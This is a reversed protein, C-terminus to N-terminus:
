PAFLKGHPHKLKMLNLKTQLILYVSGEYSIGLDIWLGREDVVPTEVKNIIPPTKGLSLETVQLDEIFYPLKISSLKRQIIDKVQETFDGSRLCDFLVRGALFNIWKNDSPSM